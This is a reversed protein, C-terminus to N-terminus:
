DMEWPKVFDLGLQEGLIQQQAWEVPYYGHLSITLGLISVFLLLMDLLLVFLLLEEFLINSLLLM